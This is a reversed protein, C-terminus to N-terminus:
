LRLVSAHEQTKHAQKPCQKTGIEYTSHQLRRWADAATLWTTLWKTKLWDLRGKLPIRNLVRDHCHGQQQRETGHKVIWRAHCVCLENRLAQRLNSSSICKWNNSCFCSPLENRQTLRYPYKIHRPITPGSILHSFCIQWPWHRISHELSSQRCFAQYTHPKKGIKYGLKTVSNFSVEDRPSFNDNEHRIVSHLNTDLLIKLTTLRVQPHACRHWVCNRYPAAGSPLALDFPRLVCLLSKRAV